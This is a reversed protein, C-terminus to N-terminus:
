IGPITLRFKPVYNKPLTERFHRLMVAECAKLWKKIARKEKRSYRKM